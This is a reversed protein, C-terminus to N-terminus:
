KKKYKLIIKEGEEWSDVAILMNEGVVYLGDRKSVIRLQGSTDFSMGDSFHVM